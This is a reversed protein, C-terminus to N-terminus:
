NGPLLSVPAGTPKSAAIAANSIGATSAFNRDALKIAVLQEKKSAKAFAKKQWKAIWRFQGKMQGHANNGVALTMLVLGQIRRRRVGTGEFLMKGLVAQAAPHNKKSAARLWRAAQVPQPKGLEGNLYIRGLQYQANRNGYLAAARFYYDVAQYIDPKIQTGTIGRRFYGAVAVVANAVYARDQRRPRIESYSDAIERYIKFASLDNHPVGDGDAYMRGLKWKAALQNKTAAYRFAGAAEDKRGDKYAKFGFKMIALPNENSKFVKLPDFAVAPSGALVAFLGAVVLIGAKLGNPKINMSGSLQM